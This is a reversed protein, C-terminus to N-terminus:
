RRYYSLKYSGWLSLLEKETTDETIRNMYKKTLYEFREKYYKKCDGYSTFGFLAACIAFDDGTVPSIAESLRIEWKEASDAELLTSLLIHEFEMPSSFYDFAGDTSTIIIIPKDLILTESNIRFDGDAHIVNSMRGDSRLNSFADEDTKLDDKTVQCLGDADLFYGRSDGAWLYECVMRSNDNNKIVAIAATTPLSKFLDGGMMAAGDSDVASKIRQFAEKMRGQLNQCDSGDFRFLKEGYFEDTICAAARSAIRAGTKNNAKPYKRAGMGGCGDFVAIYGVDTSDFSYSYCDEGLGDLKEREACIVATVGKTKIKIENKENKM